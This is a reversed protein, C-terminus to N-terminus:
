DWSPEAAVLIERERERYTRAQTHIDTHAFAHKNDSTKKIPCFSLDWPERGGFLESRESEPSELDMNPVCVTRGKQGKAMSKNPTLQIKLPKTSLLAYAHKNEILRM